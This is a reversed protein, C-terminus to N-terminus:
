QRGEQSSLISTVYQNTNVHTQTKNGVTSRHLIKYFNQHWNKFTLVSVYMTPKARKMTNTSLLLFLLVAAKEKVNEKKKKKTKCVLHNKFNSKKNGFFFACLSLWDWTFNHNKKKLKRCMCQIAGHLYIICGIFCFTGM